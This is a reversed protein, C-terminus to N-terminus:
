APFTSIKPWLHVSISVAARFDPSEQNKWEKRRGPSQVTLALTAIAAEKSDTPDLAPQVLYPQHRRDIANVADYVAGQVM